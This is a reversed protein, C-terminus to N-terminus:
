YVINLFLKDYILFCNSVLDFRGENEIVFDFSLLRHGWFLGGPDQSKKKKKKTQTYVDEQCVPSPALRARKQYMIIKKIKPFNGLREDTGHRAM